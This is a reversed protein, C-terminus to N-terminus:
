HLQKSKLTDPLCKAETISIKAAIFLLGTKTDIDIPIKYTIFTYCIDCSM